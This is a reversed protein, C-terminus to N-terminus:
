RARAIVCAECPCPGAAIAAAERWFEIPRHDDIACNGAAFSIRQLHRHHVQQDAPLADFAACAARIKASLDDYNITM